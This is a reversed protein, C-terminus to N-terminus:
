AKRLLRVLGLSLAIISLILAIILGLSYGWAVDIVNVSGLITMHVVTSIPVLVLMVVAIAFIVPAITKDKKSVILVLAAVLPLSYAILNLLSFIIEGSGIIGLDIFQKGFVIQLGTYTQNTDKVILAPFIIMLSAIFGIVISVLRLESDKIRKM